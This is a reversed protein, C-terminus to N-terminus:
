ISAFPQYLFDFAVKHKALLPPPTLPRLLLTSRILSSPNLFSIYKLRPHITGQSVLSSPIIPLPSHAFEFSHFFSSLWLYLFILPLFFASCLLFFTKIRPIPHPHALIIRNMVWRPYNRPDGIDPLPIGPPNPDFM